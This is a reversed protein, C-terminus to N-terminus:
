GAEDSPSLDVSQGGASLDANSEQLRAEPRSGGSVVNGEFEIQETNFEQLLLRTFRAVIINNQFGVDRADGVMVESAIARTQANRFSTNDRIDVHDSSYISIGRGGNDHMVNKEVLTRGRYPTGSSGVYSQTNRSDDVIIGNGDTIKRKSPDDEDSFYFPIRNRNAYSLNRRIFIKTATSQDTNWNQYVSIGSTAYPSWFSNHHVVNHDITVYDAGNTSIGGGPCHHVTNHRITVHHPHRSPDTHAAAVSIGTASTRRYGLTNRHSRAEALTVSRANGIVTFGQVVVYSAGDVSVGGWNDRLRIIPTHGPYARFTIPKTPTGSSSVSLVWTDPRSTYEGNMAFVTDGPQALDAARQLSRLPRDPSLGSHRDKGDGAVFYEKAPPNTTNSREAQPTKPDPDSRNVVALLGLCVAVATTLLAASKGAKNEAV